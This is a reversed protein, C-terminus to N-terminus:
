IWRIVDSEYMSWSGFLTIAWQEATINGKAIETLDNNLSLFLLGISGALVAVPPVGGEVKTWVVGILLWLLCSALLAGLPIGVVRGM